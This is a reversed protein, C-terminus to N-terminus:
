RHLLVEAGLPVFGAALFARLSRANGPSVQAFVPEGEPVHGLARTIIRRGAGNGQRAEDIEVAVEWRGALGRGVAFVARHDADAFARVEARRARARVLRPHDVTTARDGDEVNRGTGRAVLVADIVGVRLGTRGSLWVLFEPALAAALPDPRKALEARVDAADVDAAVISHATFAICAATEPAPAAIFDTIGDAPPFRGDAAAAFVAALSTVM